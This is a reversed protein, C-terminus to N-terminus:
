LKSIIIDIFRKPLTDSNRILSKIQQKIHDPVPGYDRLINCTHPIVCTIVEATNIYSEQSLFSLDSPTIRLQSTTNFRTRPNSSILFFLPKEKSVCIAYKEKPHPKTFHCKLLYANGCIFPM